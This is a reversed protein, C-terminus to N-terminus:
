KKGIYEGTRTDLRIIDGEKVFLPVQVRYGSEVIVPKTASGVTDGKIGPEAKKVEMEVFIPISPSRL